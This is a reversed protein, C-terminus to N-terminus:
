DLTYITLLKDIYSDMDYNAAFRFSFKSLEDLKQPSNYLEVIKNAFLQADNTNIIYGNKDEVIIDRNGKGDLCVCPLGAAMAELLVLGFPEYTAPHVYLHAKHLYDEVRDVNGHLTIKGQLQHDAIKTAIDNFNPGDGLIDIHSNPIQKQLLAMVEVLFAQNKKNVLSGVTVMRFSSEQVTSYDREGKYFRMYDIANNLLSIRAAQKKPLHAGFYHEANKSIAVFRNNCEKYKAIILSKEYYNTLKQKSLGTISLKDFQPMNDHLHTFYKIGKFIKFRSLVEALFLHSHIIEPKYEAVIKEFHTLDFKTKGKLSPKVFSSTVTFKFQFPIYEYANYDLMCVLLVEHGKAVLTNCIDITLREAGGKSLSPIIHLIRM